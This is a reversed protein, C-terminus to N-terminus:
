AAQEQTLAAAIATFLEHSAGSLIFGERDAERGFGGKYRWEEALALVSRLAIAMALTDGSAQKGIKDLLDTTATM